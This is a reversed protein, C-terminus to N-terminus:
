GKMLNFKNILANLRLPCRTTINDPSVALMKCLDTNSNPTWVSLELGQAHIIDSVTRNIYKYDTNLGVAGLSIIRRALEETFGSSEAESENMNYNLYYPIVSTSKVKEVASEPVGTYFVRDFIGYKKCIREIEPLNGYSKLDLNIRCTDSKAVESVLEEFEAGENQAPEDKHIVCPTGDPRFSVDFEVIQANNKIAYAIAEATNEPKDEAGAHWTATFTEPLPSAGALIEGLKEENEFLVAIKDEAKHICNSVTKM